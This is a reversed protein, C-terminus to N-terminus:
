GACSYKGRIESSRSQAARLLSNQLKIQEEITAEKATLAAEKTEMEKKREEIEIPIRQSCTNQRAIEEQLRENLGRKAKFDFMGLQGLKQRIQAASRASADREEQSPVPKTSQERLDARREEVNAREEKLKRLKEKSDLEQQIAEELVKLDKEIRDTVDLCSITPNELIQRAIEVNGTALTQTASWLISAQKARESADLYGNLDGFAAEASKYKGSLMLHEAEEYKERQQRKITDLCSEARERSDKYGEKGYDALSSFEKAARMYDGQDQLKRASAYSKELAMFERARDKLQEADRYGDIQAFVREAEEYHCSQLCQCGKEYLSSLRLEEERERWVRDEEKKFLAEDLKKKSDAYDGLKSFIKIAKDYRGRRMLAVASEYQQRKYNDRAMDALEPADRWEGLKLLLTEADLFRSEELARKADEYLQLNKKEERIQDIREDMESSDRYDGLEGFLERAEDYKEEELLKSARRYSEEKIAMDRAYLAKEMMARSNKFDGLAAFALAAEDYAGEDLLKLAESFDRNNRAEQIVSATEDESASSFAEKLYLEEADFYISSYLLGTYADINEFTAHFATGFYIILDQDGGLLPLMYLGKLVKNADMTAQQQIKEDLSALFSSCRDQDVALANVHDFSENLLDGKILDLLEEFSLHKLKIRTTDVPDFLKKTDNQLAKLQRIHEWVGYGVISGRGMRSLADLREYQKREVEEKEEEMRVALLHEERSATVVKRIEQLLIISKRRELMKPVFGPEIAAIIRKASAEAEKVGSAKLAYFFEGFSMKRFDDYSNIDFITKM